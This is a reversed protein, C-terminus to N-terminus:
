LYIEPSLYISDSWEKGHITLAQINQQQKSKYTDKEDVKPSM